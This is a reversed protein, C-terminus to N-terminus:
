STQTTFVEVVDAAQRRPPEPLPECPIAPALCSALAACAQATAFLGDRDLVFSGGGRGGRTWGSVHRPTHIDPPPIRLQYDGSWGGDSLQSALLAGVAQDRLQRAGGSPMLSLAEVALATSFPDM